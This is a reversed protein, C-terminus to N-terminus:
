IDSQISDNAIIFRQQRRRRVEMLWLLHSGPEALAKKRNLSNMPLMLNMYVHLRMYVTKLQTPDGTAFLLLFINFLITIICVKTQIQTTPAWGSFIYSESFVFSKMTTFIFLTNFCPFSAMFAMIQGEHVHMNQEKINKSGYKTKDRKRNLCICLKVAMLGLATSIKSVFYEFLMMNNHREGACQTHSAQGTQLHTTWNYLSHEEGHLKFQRIFILM